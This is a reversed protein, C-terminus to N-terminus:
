AAKALALNPKRASACLARALKVLFVYRFVDVDGMEDDVGADIGGPHALPDLLPLTLCGEGIEIRAPQHPRFRDGLGVPLHILFRAVGPRELALDSGKRFFPSAM